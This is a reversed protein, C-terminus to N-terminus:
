QKLETRILTLLHQLSPMIAEQKYIREVRTYYSAFKLGEIVESDLSMKRLDFKIEKHSPPPITDYGIVEPTESLYNIMRKELSKSYPHYTADLGQGITVNSQYEALGKKIENSKVLSLKGSGLLETYVAFGPYYTTVYGSSVISLVTRASDIQQPTNKFYAQLQAINRERYRLREFTLHYAASDEKLETELNLLISGLEIDNKRGENWNQFTIALSIAIFILLVEGLAYKWNLKFNPKRMM